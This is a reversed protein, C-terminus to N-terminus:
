PENCMRWAKERIELVCRNMEKSWDSYNRTRQELTRCQVAKLLGQKIEPIRNKYIHYSDVFHRYCGLKCDINYLSKLRAQIFKQIM